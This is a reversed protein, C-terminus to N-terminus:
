RSERDLHHVARRDIDAIDAVHAIAKRRLGIDDALIAAAGHQERDHLGSVSGRERHHIANAFQQRHHRGRQRRFQLDLRQRILGDEHASGNCPTIRSATIAAHRVPRIIRSNRPLQRLVSIMATEIGSEIRVDIMTSLKSCSVMLMMVSPPSASATPIRTSSAVTSISFTLRLRSRLCPSRAAGDQVARRLDGNRRQNGRQADADNEQRHKKQAAHRAVQEHRQGFRHHERHQRGVAERSRQHRRQGLVQQLQLMM